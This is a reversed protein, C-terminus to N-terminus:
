HLFEFQMQSPEEEAKWGIFDLMKQDTIERWQGRYPPAHFPPYHKPNGFHWAYVFFQVEQGPLSSKWCFGPYWSYSCGFEGALFM